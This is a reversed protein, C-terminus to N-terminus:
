DVKFYNGNSRKKRFNKCYENEAIKYDGCFGGHTEFLFKAINFPM